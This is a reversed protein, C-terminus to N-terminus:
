AARIFNKEAYAESAIQRALWDLEPDALLKEVAAASFELAQGDEGIGDWGTLIRGLFRVHAATRAQYQAEGDGEGIERLERSYDLAAQRRQPCSSALITVSAGLPLGTEPHKLAVTAAEISRIRKVDFM